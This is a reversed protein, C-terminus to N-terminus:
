RKKTKGSSRKLNKNTKDRKIILSRSSVIAIFLSTFLMWDSGTILGIIGGALGLYTLIVFWFQGAKQEDKTANKLIDGMPFGLILVVVGVILKLIEQM